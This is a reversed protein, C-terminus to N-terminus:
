LCGSIQCEPVHPHTQSPSLFESSADEEYIHEDGHHWAVFGLSGSINIANHRCLNQVFFCIRFKYRMTVDCM